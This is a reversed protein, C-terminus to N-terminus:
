KFDKFSIIMTNEALAPEKEPQKQKECSCSSMGKGCKSCSFENERQTWKKWDSKDKQAKDFERAYQKMGHTSLENTPEGCECECKPKGCECETIYEEYKKINKM